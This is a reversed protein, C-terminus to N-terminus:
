GMGWLSNGEAFTWRTLTYNSKAACVEFEARGYRASFTGKWM